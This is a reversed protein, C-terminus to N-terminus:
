RRVTELYLARRAPSMSLIAPEPWGYASALEHVEQVSRRAGAEIEAWLFAAIDLTEEAGHGCEPCALFIRIESLPDAEAMREGITELDADTWSVPEGEDTRCRELLRTAAADPPQQVSEALDRSTPLRFRRRKFRITHTPDGPGPDSGILKGADIGFEM